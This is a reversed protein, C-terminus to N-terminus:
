DARDASQESAKLAVRALERARTAMDEGLQERFGEAAVNPQFVGREELSLSLSRGLADFILGYAVAHVLGGALTGVGPFAKLGNGSVALVLSLTGGLHGQSFDLFSEVDVDRVAVGYLDCLERVLRTGLYGQIVLDTGPGVAALAGFVAKRTYGRVLEAAQQERLTQEARDLREGVLDFVSRERLQELLAEDLQLLANVADRLADLQVKRPRQRTEKRGDAHEVTVAEDGGAVASVVRVPLSTLKADAIRQRLREVLQSLEEATYRDSKNLVVVVPRELKLLRELAQWEARTLDGEALFLVVHARRAEDLAAADDHGDALQLGPVDALRLTTGDNLSWNYQTITRTSGGIVSIEPEADPVLARVLASKGTSIQGLLALEIHGAARRRDLEALELQAQSVDAGAAKVSAMRQAPDVVVVPARKAAAASGGGSRLILVIAWISVGGLAILGAAYLAWVWPSAAQMRDWVSFAAESVFLTAALALLLVLLVLLILLVKISANLRM